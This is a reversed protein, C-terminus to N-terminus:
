AYRWLYGGASPLKGARCKSINQSCIGTKREAEVASCYEKVFVGSKTYQFVPISKKFAAKYTRNGYNINYDCGCWELNEVCNNRQNEDKHNVQPLNDPNPIFAEAVLRHVLFRKKLGNKCLCVFLYGNEKNHIWGPSLIFDNKGYQNNTKRALSKVRGFSSVQYYGNFGPIDKWVEEM